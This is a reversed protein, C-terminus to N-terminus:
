SSMIISPQGSVLIVEGVKRSKNKNKTLQCYKILKYKSSSSASHKQHCELCSPSQDCPRPLSVTNCPHPLYLYVEKSPRWRVIIHQLLCLCLSYVLLQKVISTIFSNTARVVTLLSFYQRFLMKNRKLLLTGHTSINSQTININLIVEYQIQLITLFLDYMLDMSLKEGNMEYLQVRNSM